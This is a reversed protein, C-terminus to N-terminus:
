GANNSENFAKHGEETIEWAFVGPACAHPIKRAYGLSELKEMSKPKWIFFGPRYQDCDQIALKLSKNLM